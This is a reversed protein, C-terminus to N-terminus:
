NWSMAFTVQNSMGWVNQNVEALQNEEPDRKRLIELRFSAGEWRVVRPMVAALSVGGRAPERGAPFRLQRPVHFKGNLDM